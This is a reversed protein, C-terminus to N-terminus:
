IGQLGLASSTRNSLVTVCRKTFSVAMHMCPMATSNGIRICAPPDPMCAQYPTDRKSGQGPGALWRGDYLAAVEQLGLAGGFGPATTNMEITVQVAHM